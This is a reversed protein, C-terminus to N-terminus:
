LERGEGLVLHAFELIPHKGDNTLGEVEATPVESGLSPPPLIQANPVASAISRKGPDWPVDEPSEINRHRRDCLSLAAAPYFLKPSHPYRREHGAARTSRTQNM